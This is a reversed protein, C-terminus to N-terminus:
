RGENVGQCRKRERELMTRKARSEKGPSGGPVVQWHAFSTCLPSLMAFIDDQDSIRSTQCYSGFRRCIASIPVRALFGAVLANSFALM